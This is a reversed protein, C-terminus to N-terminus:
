SSISKFIIQKIMLIIIYFLMILLATYLKLMRAVLKLGVHNNQYDLLIIKPDTDM